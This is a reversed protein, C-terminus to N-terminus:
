ILIEKRKFTEAIASSSVFEQTFNFLSCCDRLSIMENYTHMNRLPLGVDVVPVGLAAIHVEPANTGTSSPEAKQSVDIEKEKCLEISARTLARDTSTSLSVSIGKSMEVSERDPVDAANALNVDVVLAYDPAIRNACVYAGGRAASEERCSLTVYVDGALEEASMAAVASLLIAGCAKNDLSAGLIYEDNILMPAKYFSVPTGIPALKELEDKSFGCGVDILLKDIEALEESGSRLHPPTSIIVGDLAKEGFISVRASQMIARDIGGLSAIRLFGGELVESVVFGIEDFHADVMIKPAGEKKASKFFVFNGTGDSSVSDFSDSYLNKLADAARYEFGSVSCLSTLAFISDVLKKCLKVDLEKIDKNENLNECMFDVGTNKIM